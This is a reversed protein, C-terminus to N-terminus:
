DEASMRRGILYGIGAVASLTHVIGFGPQETTTTRSQESGEADTPETDDAPTASTDVPTVAVSEATTEDLSITYEGAADFSLDAEITTAEGPAVEVERTARPDGDVSVTATTTAQNAGLNEYSARVTLTEDVSVSRGSLRIDRRFQPGFSEHKQRSHFAAIDDIMQGTVRHEVGAYARFTASAGVHEFIAESTRFRDDVQLSGFVDQILADPSGTDRYLKHVYQGPADPDQDDAGIYRYQSTNVWADRDFEDGTLESLDAIGVPWPLTTEGPNGATPVDDTLEALPLVSIGNGGASVANVRDPHLITFMEAFRGNTSFGGVHVAPPIEYPAGALRDRADDIMAIVQRDLRDLGEGYVGVPDYVGDATRAPILPVVGPANLTSTIAKVIGREIETRGSERRRDTESPVGRRPSCVVVLPRTEGGSGRSGGNEGSEPVAPTSLFYPWNFGADPDAEILTAESESGTQQRSASVDPTPDTEAGSEARRETATVGPATAGVGAATMGTAQVVRRRTWTLDSRRTMGHTEIM